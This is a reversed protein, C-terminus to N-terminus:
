NVYTMYILKGSRALADLHPSYVAPNHYGIDGWGQDDTIIVIVNPRGRDPAQALVSAALAFAVSLPASCAIM